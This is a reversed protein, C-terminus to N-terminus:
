QSNDNIIDLGKELGIRTVQGQWTFATLAIQAADDGIIESAADFATEVLKDKLDDAVNLVKIGANLPNLNIGFM